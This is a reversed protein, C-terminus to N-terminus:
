LIMKFNYLHLLFSVELLSRAIKEKEDAQTNDNFLGLPILEPSLYWMHRSFAKLGAEACCKDM